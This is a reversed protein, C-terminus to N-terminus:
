DKGRRSSALGPHGGRGKGAAVTGAGRRQLLDCGLVGEELFGRPGCPAGCVSRPEEQTAERVGGPRLATLLAEASPHCRGRLPNDQVEMEEGPLSPGLGLVGPLYGAKMLRLPPQRPVQAEAWTDVGRLDMHAVPLCPRSLPRPIFGPAHPVAEACLLLRQGWACLSAGDQGEWLTAGGPARPPGSTALESAANQSHRGDVWAGAM